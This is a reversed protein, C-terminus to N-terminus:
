EFLVMECSRSQAHAGQALRRALDSLTLSATARDLDVRAGEPLARAVCALVLVLAEAEQRALDIEQLDLVLEASAAGAEGVVRGIAAEVRALRESLGTLESGIRELAIVARTSSRARRPPM